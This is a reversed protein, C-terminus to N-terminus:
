IPKQDLKQKSNNKKIYLFLLIVGIISIIYGSKEIITGTYELYIEGSENTDIKLFGNKSETVKLNKGNITAKYGPYYLYPLEISVNEANEIVLYYSLKNKEEKRIIASGNLIISNNSRNMLYEENNKAKLPLYDRNIEYYKMYKAYIISNEFYRDISNNQIAVFYKCRIVCLVTTIILLLSFIIHKIEPFKQMIINANIGCILSSFLIFFGIMRWPFQIITLFHPCIKWPFLSTSMYLSICSLLLYIVYVDKYKKDVKKYCFISSSFLFITTIGLSINVDSSQKIKSGFLGKLTAVKNLCDTGYTYMYDNSFITYNSLTRYEIIPIIYFASVLLIFFLDVCLYKLIERDKLKKLNYFIYLLSFIFAYITTITHSLILGIGGLIILYQKNKNNNNFLEYLGNFLIPLFIFASYEGVANRSYIDTIKYPATIYIVSTIISIIKNNTVKESLCYMSIGSSFIAFFTFLKLGWTCSGLIIISFLIPLYTTISGYFVNLCYGFGYMEKYYIFPPFIGDKMIEKVSIIRALHIRFENLESLAMTFLPFCILISLTFIIWFPYTRKIYKKLKNRIKLM